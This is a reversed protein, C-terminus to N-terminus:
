GANPRGQAQGPPARRGPKAPPVAKRLLPLLRRAGTAALHNNDSYISVGDVTPVCTGGDCLANSPDLLSAGTQAAVQQLMTVLPAHLARHEQLSLSLEPKEGDWIKRALYEPVNHRYIPVPLMIFVRKGARTLEGVDVLLQARVERLATEIDPLARCAGDRNRCLEPRSSPDYLRTRLYPTWISALVVSSVDQRSAIRHSEAVSPECDKNGPLVDFGRVPPCGHVARLEVRIGRLEDALVRLAGILHEAHSDGVFLVARPAEAGLVCVGDVYPCDDPNGHDDAAADHAAAAAPLRFPLGGALHIGAGCMVVAVAVSLNLRLYRGPTLQRGARRLPTEVWRYCAYGLAVSAVVLAVITPPDLPLGNRRTFVVMPWHVLYLSYSIDGLFQVPRLTLWRAESHAMMLLAAGAVPLLARHGPYSMGGDYLGMAAAIALGGVPLGWRLRRGESLCVAGGTLMEWTRTPLLFFSAEPKDPTAIVCVALSGLLGAWIGFHVGKRGWLRHLGGLAIPYLLYFQWEVSLSWTHLFYEVEARRAFYGQNQWFDFNSVFGMAFAASRGVGAFSSPLETLYGVGLVVLLMAGLAPIIRRARAAYFEALSLRGQELRNLITRTMLFGSIVFFVDVGVFGGRFGPVVFHFLVVGVM